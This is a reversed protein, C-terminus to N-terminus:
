LVPHMESVFNYFFDIEGTVNHVHMDRLVSFTRFIDLIMQSSIELIKNNPITQKCLQNKFRWAHM